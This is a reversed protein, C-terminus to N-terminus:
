CPNGAGARDTSLFQFEYNAPSLEVQKQNRYAERESDLLKLLVRNLLLKSGGQSVLTLSRQSPAAYTALVQMTAERTGLIGRYQLRYNRTGRYGHLQASRRASAAMMKDVIVSAPLVPPEKSHPDKTLPDKTLLYRSLDKVPMDPLSGNNNQSSQGLAVSSALLVFVTLAAVRREATGEYATAEFRLSNM